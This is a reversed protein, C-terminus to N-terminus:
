DLLLSVQLHVFKERFIDCYSYLIFYITNWVPIFKYVTTHLCAILLIIDTRVDVEFVRCNTVSTVELTLSNLFTVLRYSCLEKGFLVVWSGRGYHFRPTEFLRTAKLFARVHKYHAASLGRGIDRCIIPVGVAITLCYTTRRLGQLIGKLLWTVKIEYLHWIYLFETGHYLFRTVFNRPLKIHREEL